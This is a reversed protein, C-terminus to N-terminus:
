PCSVDTGSYAHVASRLEEASTTSGQDPEHNSHWAAGLDHRHDMIGRPRWRKSSEHAEAISQPWIQSAAPCERQVTTVCFCDNGGGGGGEGQKEVFSSQSFKLFNVFQPISCKPKILPLIFSIKPKLQPPLPVMKPPLQIREARWTILTHPIHFNSENGIFEIRM